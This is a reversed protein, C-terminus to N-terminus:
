KRERGVTEETCDRIYELISHTVGEIARTMDESLSEGPDFNSGEIGFILVKSPLKGLLRALEITHAVTFSHTSQHFLYTPISRNHAEIRFITGPDAGSSMADVLILIDAGDWANMLDFNDGVCEIINVNEPALKELRRAVLLGASDDSRYYNGVGVVVIAPRHPKHETQEIQNALM